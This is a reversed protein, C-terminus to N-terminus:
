SGLDIGPGYVIDTDDYDPLERLYALCSKQYIASGHSLSGKATYLVSKLIYEM